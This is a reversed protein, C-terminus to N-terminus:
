PKVWGRRILHSFMRRHLVVALQFIPSVLLSASLRAFIASIASVALSGVMDFPFHVGLYIRAWAIPIALIAMALGITRTQRSLCLSIAVSLILTLHDSPFSSDAVHAILTHGLGIMFPRPHQWLLGILLNFSLGLIGCWAAELMGYRVKNSHGLWGGCLVLPVVLICDQAFFRAMSVLWAAPHEPANLMFFLSQNLIEFAARFSALDIM